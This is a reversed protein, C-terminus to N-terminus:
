ETGRALFSPNIPVPLQVTELLKGDSDVESSIIHVRLGADIDLLLTRCRRMDKTAGVKEYDEAARLAECKAEEFRSEKCLFRAQLETARGLCYPDNTAHSKASEIHAHAVDSRDSGFFLEALSRHIWFQQCRWNFSSAIRLATKFHNIANEAEGKSHHIDGLLRYCQCVTFQDGKDPLLNIAQSAAEEAADFQKDGYLLRALQQTSQGQASKVNLRKFLEVAAETQQIGEKHRGLYQNAEALLGLTDAVMFDNRRWKWLELVHVLLRKCEAHNGVSGFLAALESLCKPKSRHYDPLAEIRPGLMVLRPKHWRLYQIFYRCVRWVNNSSADKTTLVDLLHEVNADESTIWQAAEFGPKDPDIRASMRNFYCNKTIRLLRSSEPDKPRFYDRLPASMTIFGDNRYTLSLICFKNFIDKRKPLTSPLRCFIHKTPFLWDINNENIGQPFFAIVELLGRADPGLERFTPSALSLEITDAFSRSHETQLVDMRQQKWERALEDNNWGNQHAATALLTVLLPHFDLQKLIDDLDPRRNNEYICYFADRAAEITLTPINFTKCGPPITSIRTTICLCINDFRGLEEVVGYIERAGTGRPDLISEANDLVIVMERSSLFPRLSTIDEPNAVGAGIAKSLRSLFHTCSTSIQDCRIFRRNNGFRQKIRDHHLVTLAISTKGIGGAGILAIPALNEALGVIEGILEDRGFCARPPPPPFEGPMSSAFM